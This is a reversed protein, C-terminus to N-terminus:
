HEVGNVVDLFILVTCKCSQCAKHFYVLLILNHRGGDLVRILEVWAMPQEVLEMAVLATTWVVDQEMGQPLPPDGRGKM